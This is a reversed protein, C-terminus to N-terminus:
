KKREVTVITDNRAAGHTVMLIEEMEFNRKLGFGMSNWGCCVATGGSKLLHTLRDKAEKYLRANQTETMGVKRGANKYAESMQRPSYPPDLLVVDAEIGQGILTDLFEIADLHYETDAKPDIDNRLSAIKSSRSFPDVTVGGNVHRALLAAVPPLSFTNSNPMSFERSFRIPM